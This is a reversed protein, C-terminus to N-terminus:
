FAAGFTFQLRQVNDGPKKNLPIGLSLRLPGFPSSWNLALGTSYRLDSLSVKEGEGYVQGGDVFASLRLSKDNAAGPMPFLIEVTGVVERSGGLANNLPDRPGLSYTAYGRVTDPGGAYYNKFFPLPKNGIGGAYGLTGALRLTYQRSLPKLWQQGFNLKYYELKGAGVELSARSLVGSTPIIVSDRTDHAWGLTTSGYTYKDGFKSAFDTYVFPSNSFTTLKVDEANFGVSVSDTESLPYGFKIGSRFLM